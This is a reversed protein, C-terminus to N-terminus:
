LIKNYFSHSFTYRTKPAFLLPLCFTCCLTATDGADPRRKRSVAGKRAQLAARGGGGAMGGVEQGRGCLHAPLM